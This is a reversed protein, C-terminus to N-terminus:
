IDCAYASYNFKKSKFSCNELSMNDGARTCQALIYVRVDINIEKSVVILATFQRYQNATNM